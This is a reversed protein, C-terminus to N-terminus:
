EYPNVTSEVSVKAKTKAAKKTVPPPAEALPVEISFDRNPWVEREVPVRGALEFHLVVALDGRPLQFALPTVGVTAGTDGRVVTAGPPVSRLEISVTAPLVPKAPEPVPTPAVAVPVVVPLPLAAPRTLGYGAAAVALLGVAAVATVLGRSRRPPVPLAEAKVPVPATGDVIAELRHAVDDMSQPRASPEKALLQMVLAELAPPIPEGGPTKPPLPPPAQTMIQVVLKGFVEGTFPLRSSLMEYLVVGVAYVDALHDTGAGSAQEPAMYAPTGIIQGDMTGVKPADALPVVLKAVGFDLVKVYDAVGSRETVFINDPKVDRHVAGVKHAASLAAAIQRTINLVRAVSLPECRILESLPAGALLEMVCYVRPEGTPGVDEAFDFIEVIHEHNIANVTRAEQLFRQVLHGNRSHEPRLVKLAVQRGLRTHKALYVTGMAGQGLVSMTKYVGFEAGAGEAKGTLTTPKQGPRSVFTRGSVEEPPGSLLATAVEAASGFRDAPAKALCRQVVHNLVAAEGTLPPPAQNLHMLLLEGYNGAVFPPAGTLCEYLLVGLSYLDSRANARQGDICEPPTYEPSAVIAGTATRVSKPGRFNALGFDLLKPSFASLGGELFVNDPKLDRHVVGLLHVYDLAECLPIFLRVADAVSLPGNLHLHAALDTGDLAETVLYVRGDPLQDSALHRVVGKHELKQCLRSEDLFRGVVTRDGTLESRVIKLVVDCGLVRDRARFVEAVAGDAIKGLLEYRQKAAAQGTV